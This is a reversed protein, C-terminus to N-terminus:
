AAETMIDNKGYLSSPHQTNLIRHEFLYSDDSIESSDQRILSVALLGRRAVFDVGSRNSEPLALLLRKRRQANLKETLWRIMESGIGKEREEPMTAFRLLHIMQEHLEYVMFGVIRQDHESECVMGICYTARLNDIFDQENWSSDYGNADIALVEPLDRRIMWRIHTPYKPKHMEPSREITQSDMSHRLNGRTGWLLLASVRASARANYIARIHQEPHKEKEYNSERQEWFGALKRTMEELVLRDEGDMWRLLNGDQLVKQM